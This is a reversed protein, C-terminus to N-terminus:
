PVRIGMWRREKTAHWPLVERDYGSTVWRILDDILILECGTVMLNRLRGWRPMLCNKVIGKEMDLLGVFLVSHRFARTSSCSGVSTQIM